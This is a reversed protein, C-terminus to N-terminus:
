ALTYPYAASLRPLELGFQTLRRQMISAFLGALEQNDKQKLGFRLCDFTFGTGPPGFFNIAMPWWRRLAQAVSPIGFRDVAQTLVRAGFVDHEAEEELILDAARAHPAYSSERYNIGIMLLGTLDLSLSGMLLDLDGAAQQAFYRPADFSPARRLVIVARDAHARDVGLDALLGYILAAHEGEERLNKEAEARLEPDELTGSVRQYGEATLQEALAHAALLRILVRAYHPEIRGLDAVELARPAFQPQIPM